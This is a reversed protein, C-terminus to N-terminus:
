NGYQRLKRYEIAYAANDVFCFEWQYNGSEIFQEMEEKTEFTKINWM